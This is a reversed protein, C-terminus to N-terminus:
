SAPRVCLWPPRGSKRRLAARRRAKDQPSLRRPGRRRWLRRQPRRGDVQASHPSAAASAADREGGPRSARPKPLAYAPTPAVAPKPINPALGQPPRPSHPRPLGHNTPNILNHPTSHYVANNRDSSSFHRFLSLHSLSNILRGDALLRARRRNGWRAHLRLNANCAFLLRFTTQMCIICWLRGLSRFVCLLFTAHVKALATYRVVAARLANLFNYRQWATRAYPVIKKRSM